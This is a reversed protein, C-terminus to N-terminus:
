GSFCLPHIERRRGEYSRRGPHELCRMEAISLVGCRKKALHQRYEDGAAKMSFTM